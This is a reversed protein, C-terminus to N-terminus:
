GDTVFYVIDGLRTLDVLLNKQEVGKYDYTKAYSRESENKVGITIGWFAPDYPPPANWDRYSHSGDTVFCVVYSGAPLSITESAMRNKAAGGARRTNRDSMQWVRDGTKLGSLSALAGKRLQKHWGEVGDQGVRHGTGRITLSLDRVERRRDGSHFVRDALYELLESFGEVDHSWDPFAAYYVEYEGRPLGVLDTYEDLGRAYRSRKANRMKWVVERTGKNLIWASTYADWGRDSAGIGHVSIEQDEDLAFGDAKVDNPALHQIEALLQEQASVPTIFLIRLGSLIFLLRKM